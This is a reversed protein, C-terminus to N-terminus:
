KVRWVRISQEDVTRIAYERQTSKHLETRAKGVSAALRKPLKASQGPEMRTLLGTLKDKVLSGAIRGTPIPVDSEVAVADLDIDIPEPKARAKAPSPAKWGPFAGSVTTRSNASSAKLSPQAGPNPKILDIPTGLRYVVEDDEDKARVLVGESVATGLLSHVQKPSTDFKAGVESSSLEEDPNTTLYEIVKYAVSGPQPRYFRSPKAAGASAPRDTTETTM